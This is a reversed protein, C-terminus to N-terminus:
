QKEIHAKSAQDLLDLRRALAMLESGISELGGAIRDADVQLGQLREGLADAAEGKFRAGVRERLQGVDRAALSSVSSACGKLRRAVARIEATDYKM